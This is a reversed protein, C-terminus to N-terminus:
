LVCLDPRGAASDQNNTVVLAQTAPRYVVLASASRIPSGLTAAATYSGSAPIVQYDPLLPLNPSNNTTVGAIQRNATATTDPMITAASGVAFAGIALEGTTIKGPSTVSSATSATNAVATTNAADVANATAIGSVMLLDVAKAVVGAPFTVTVAGSLDQATVQQSFVFLEATQSGQADDLARADPSTVTGASDSITPNASPDVADDSAVVIILTDGVHVAASLSVNLSSLNATDDVAQGVLVPVGISPLPRAELWELSPMALHRSQAQRPPNSRRRGAGKPYTPDAAESKRFM